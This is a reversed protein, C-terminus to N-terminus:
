NCAINWCDDPSTGNNMAVNGSANGIGYDAVIGYDGNNNAKNSSVVKPNGYSGYGMDDFEVGDGDNWNAINGTFTIGGPYDMYFGDGGNRKATNNMYKAQLSYYDYFGDGGNDNATNGSIVSPTFSSYSYYDYCEYIYFGESSNDTAFNNKMTVWGYEACEMYFGTSGGDGDADARNGTYTQDGSAYDYFGYDSYGIARNGSFHDGQEYYAYFADYADTVTNNTIWNGASYEVDIGYGVEDITNNTILNNAGYEVFIGEDYTEGDGDITLNKFTGGVTAYAYVAYDYHAITGNKVTVNKKNNTYVGNDGDSGVPGWITHGNLNLTINKKGFTIADGDYASCDMDGTLTVNSMITTGCAPVAAFAVGPVVSLMGLAVMVAIAARRYAPKM